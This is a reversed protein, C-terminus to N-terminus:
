EEKWIYKEPLKGTRQIEKTLLKFQEQEFVFYVPKDGHSESFEKFELQAKSIGGKKMKYEIRFTTGCLWAETDPYGKIAVSEHRIIHGQEIFQKKFWSCMKGIESEERINRKM